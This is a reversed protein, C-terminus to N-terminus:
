KTAKISAKRYFENIENQTKVADNLIKKRLISRFREHSKEASYFDWNRVLVNLDKTKILNVLIKKNKNERFSYYIKKGVSHINLVDTAVLFRLLKGVSGSHNHKLGIYNCLDKQTFSVYNGKLFDRILIQIAFCSNKIVSADGFGPRNPLGLIKNKYNYTILNKNKM